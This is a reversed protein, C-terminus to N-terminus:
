GPSRRTILGLAIAYIAFKSISDFGSKDLISGIRHVVLSESIKLERAIMDRAKGQCVLPIIDMEKETFQSSFYLQAEPGPSFGSGIMYNYSGTEKVESTITEKMQVTM